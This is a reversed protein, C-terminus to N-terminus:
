RSNSFKLVLQFTVFEGSSNTVLHEEMAQTSVKLEKAFKSKMLLEVAEQRTPKPTMANLKKISKDVDPQLAKLKNKLSEEAARLVVKELEKENFNFSIKM